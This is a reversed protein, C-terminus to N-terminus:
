RDDDSSFDGDEERPPPNRRYIQARYWKQIRKAKEIKKLNLEYRAQRLNNVEEDKMAHIRM